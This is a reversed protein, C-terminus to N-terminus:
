QENLQVSDTTEAPTTQQEVAEVHNTTEVSEADQNMEDNTM